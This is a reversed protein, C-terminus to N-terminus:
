ATRVFRGSSCRVKQFGSTKKQWEGPLDEEEPNPLEVWEKWAEVNLELEDSLPKFFEIEKLACVNGWQQVTLYEQVKATMQPPNPVSKGMVLYEVYDGSILAKRQMVRLMLMTAVILKHKDFLGRRSYNFVEYTINEVLYQLREALAAAEKKTDKEEDGAAAKAEAEAAERAEKVKILKRRPLVKEEAEVEDWDDGPLIRGAIARKYVLDFSSLSYFHFTHIKYLDSLLFFMLAGRNAVPRYKENAEEIVIATQKAIVMKEGVEISTAKSDELNEILEINETPDGEANALQELIGDELQQLKIKFNNQQQVLDDKAKALDPRELKVAVALLQDELGDETM